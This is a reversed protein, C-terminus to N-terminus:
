QAQEIEVESANMTTGALTGKAKVVTFGDSTMAAFFAAQNAFRVKPVSREDGFGTVPNVASTDVTILGFLTLNPSAVATVPGQIITLDRAATRQVQSATVKNSTRDFLGSIQLHDGAVITALDLTQGASDLLRTSTGITVPVGNLTLTGANVAGTTANGELKVNKEVELHVNTAAVSGDAQLLGEIELLTGPTVIDATANTGAKQFAAASTNITIAGNPGSITFANGAVGGNAIGKLNVRDNAAADVANKKEIRSATLVTGNRVGKVEVVSGVAIDALATKAGLVDATFNVSGAGIGTGITFSGSALNVTAIKGKLQVTKDTLANFDPAKRAIRTATLIGSNDDLNGSIELEPNNVAQSIDALDNIGGDFSTNVAVQVKRGMVTLTNTNIDISGADLPGRLEPHFEINEYEGKGTANNITGRISVNMGIRLSDEGASANNEFDLTIRNDEVLSPKRSFEIGNVVVSGFGIIKGSAVQFEGNDTSTSGGGTGCATLGALLFIGFWKFNLARNMIRKKM